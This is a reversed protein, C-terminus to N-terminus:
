PPAGTPFSVFPRETPPRRRSTARKGREGGKRKSSVLLRKPDDICGRCREQSQCLQRARGCAGGFAGFAEGTAAAPPPAEGTGAQFESGRARATRREDAGKAFRAPREASTRGRGVRARGRGRRFAAPSAEARGGARGRTAPSGRQSGPRRRRAAERADGRDPASAVEAGAASAGLRESRVNLGKEPRAVGETPAM